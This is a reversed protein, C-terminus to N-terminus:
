DVVVRLNTFHERFKAQLFHWEPMHNAPLATLLGIFQDVEIPSYTTSFREFPSSFCLFAAEPPKKTDRTENRSRWWTRDAAQDCAKNM